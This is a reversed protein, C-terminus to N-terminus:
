QRRSSKGQYGAQAAVQAIGAGMSGAGCVGVTTIDDINM